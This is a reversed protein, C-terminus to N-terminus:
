LRGIFASYVSVLLLPQLWKSAGPSPVYLITENPQVGGSSVAIGPDSFVNTRKTHDTDELVSEM